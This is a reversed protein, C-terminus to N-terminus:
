TMLTHMDFFECFKTFIFRLPFIEYKKPIDFTSLRTLLAFTRSLTGQGGLNVNPSAQSESPHLKCGIGGVEGLTVPYDPEKCMKIDSKQGELQSVQHFSYFKDRETKTQQRSKEESNRILLRQKEIPKLFYSYM